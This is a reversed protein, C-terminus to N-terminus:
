VVCIMTYTTKEKSAWPRSSAVANVYVNNEDWGTILRTDDSSTGAAVSGGSCYLYSRPNDKFRDTQVVYQTGSAILPQENNAYIAVFTPVVGLEHSFSEPTSETVGNFDNEFEIERIYVNSPGGSAQGSAYVKAM